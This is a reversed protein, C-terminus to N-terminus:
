VRGTVRITGSPDATLIGGDVLIAAGTTWSAEDSALYVAAAAHDEPLGFRGMPVDKLRANRAEPQQLVASNLGTETLGPALANVTIGFPALEAAAVLTLMNLGAKSACYHGRYMRPRFAGTSTVNIIRGYRQAVMRRAVARLCYFAGTLNTRIIRDWDEDTMETVLANSAVAANNVLIDLRGWRKIIEAVTQEVQASRRVDCRYGVANTGKETVDRAVARVAPGDRDCLALSAGEQAFRLAIGKGIGSAAGTIMAVKGQLRM